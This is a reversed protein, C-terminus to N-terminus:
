RQNRFYGIIKGKGTRVLSPIYNGLVKKCSFSRGIPIHGQSSVLLAVGSLHPCAYAKSQQVIHINSVILVLVLIVLIALAITGINVDGFM